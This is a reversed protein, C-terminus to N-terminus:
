ARRTAKYRCWVPMAVPLRVGSVRVAETMHTVGTARLRASEGTKVRGGPLEWMGRRSRGLLVRGFSDTAVAAAGFM